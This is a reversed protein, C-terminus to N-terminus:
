FGVEYLWNLIRMGNAQLGTVRCSDWCRQKEFMRLESSLLELMLRGDVHFKQCPMFVWWIDNKTTRAIYVKAGASIGLLGDKQPLLGDVVQLRKRLLSAGVLVYSIVDGPKSRHCVGFVKDENHLSPSNCFLALDGEFVVAIQQQGFIPRPCGDVYRAGKYMYKDKLSLNVFM